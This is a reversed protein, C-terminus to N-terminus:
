LWRNIDVEYFNFLEDRRYMYDQDPVEKSANIHVLEGPLSLEKWLRNIDEFQYFENPIYKGEHLHVDMQPKWHADMPHDEDRLVYDVFLKYDGEDVGPIKDGSTKGLFFQYASRLREVPERLFILVRADSEECVEEPPHTTSGLMQLTNRMSMSGAKRNRAIYLGEEVKWYKHTKVPRPNRSIIQPM